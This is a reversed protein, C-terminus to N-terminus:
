PGPQEKLDQYELIILKHDKEDYGYKQYPPLKPLSIGNAKIIENMFEDFDKPYRDNLARYKNM